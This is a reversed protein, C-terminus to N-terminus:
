RVVMALLAANTPNRHLFSERFEDPVHEAATRRVWAQGEALVAAAHATDGAAQLARACHLWLEVRYSQVLDVETALTLACLADQRAAAPDAEAALRARRLHAELVHGLYGRPRMREAVQALAPLAAALPQNMAAELMLSERLNIRTNSGLLELGADVHSQTPEGRDRALRCALLCLRARASVSLCGQAAVMAHVQWARAHQGLMWFCLARHIRVATVGTPVAEELIPEAADAWRLADRYRGTQACPEILNLQTIAANVPQLELTATLRLSELGLTISRSHRGTESESIAQNGAITALSGFDGIREVIQRTLENQARCKAPLGANDYLVAMAGHFNRRWGDDSLRGIWGMCSEGLALADQTRDALTLIDFLVLQCRRTLRTDGLEQATGLARRALGEARETEYRRGALAAREMWAEVRQAPTDALGELADCRQECGEATRELDVYHQLAEKRTDFAAMREGLSEEISARQDLFALLEANRLSATAKQEAKKLWPLARRPQQADIWHRAVRAPEGAHLELWAAVSANTHQAIAAPVSALVADFVLDHAFATGRMIQASELENLADALGMARTGLVQEALDLSFDEGAIGAVRALALAPPSLQAVRRAMLQGVSLPRPLSGGRALEDIRQDVWAQKLTELVFLPNGGTRQHLPAAIARGAIGLQLEDVLEALAAETLAAVVVPVLMAAEALAHELAQVPSGAEAPRWALAWPPQRSEVILSQLMELSAVDAFHLDDLVLGQLGPAAQLYALMARQLQLWQGEPFTAGPGGLEPLVRALQHRTDADLLAAPQGDIARLLRALTAYPVGADGPRGAARVIGPQTHMFEALLRTKGMGAEGIVAAVQAGAWANALATAERDRGVMRPPRLVAAPLVRRSGAPTPVNAREVTALLALTEPSPRAGLEHKLVQECVDFAALAAARDGLLYHLRMVRQHALESLPQLRLLAQAVQLAADAEGAAELADAQARLTEQERGRRQERQLHIWADLEPAEPLAIDGLLEPSDGLDHEVDPALALTPSGVALDRGLLCKLQFLRQRLTTRAQVPASDPWLLVGLRDRTTPGEVALWALLAADRAALPQPLAGPREVQPQDSLRLLIPPSPPQSPVPAVFRTSLTALRAVAERM